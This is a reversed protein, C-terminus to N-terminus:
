SAAALRALATRVSFELYPEDPFRVLLRELAATSSVDGCEALADVAAACVNLEVEVELVRTLRAPSELHALAGLIEVGFIRVDVPGALLEEIRALVVDPMTKLAEIAGNRLSVDEGNLLPVLEDAAAPSGIRILATFLAERVREDSEIALAVGLPHAAQPYRGLGRAANRRVAADGRTLDDALSSFTPEEGVSPSVAPIRKALPM